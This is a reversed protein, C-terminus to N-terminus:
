AYTGVYASHQHEDMLYVQGWDVASTKTAFVIIYGLSVLWLFPSMLLDALGGKQPVSSNSKAKMDKKSKTSDESVLPSPLGLDVPSNFLTFFSVLGMLVSVGGAVFLSARWGHHLIVWTAVFPAVGGSVNTSASLVSWWTGFQSPHYWQRIIKACSPWGAGQALGNLFWFACFLGVSDATGFLLTAAGSLVLGWSFLRRASIQDSLVGGAFKSVAYALNQCSVILGNRIQEVYKTKYGRLSSSSASTRGSRHSSYGFGCFQGSQQRPGTTSGCLTSAGPSAVSIRGYSVERWYAGRHALPIVTSLISFIWGHFPSAPRATQAAREWFSARGEGSTPQELLEDM